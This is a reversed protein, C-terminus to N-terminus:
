RDTGTIDRVRHYLEQSRAHISADLAAAKDPDSKMARFFKKRDREIDNALRAAEDRKRTDSVSSRVRILM